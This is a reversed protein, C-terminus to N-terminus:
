SSSRRGGLVAMYYRFFHEDIQRLARRQRVLEDTLGRQELPLLAVLHRFVRAAGGVDPVDDARFHRSLGWHRLLLWAPFWAAMPARDALSEEFPFAREFAIWAARITPNPVTPARTEFFLPDMWCLPLWLRIAVEPAGLHHQALGMWYRLLPTDAWCLENEVAARVDTWEGYQQCLWARHARPHAAEFALDAATAALAQWVPRLFTDADAGLFRRAAPVLKRETLEIRETLAVHTAAPPAPATLAEVLATLAVLDPHRRHEQGLRHLGAETREVDRSMLGTVIEHVLLADRGDVFLDLQRRDAAQDAPPRAPRAWTSAQGSM